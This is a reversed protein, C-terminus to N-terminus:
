AFCFAALLVFPVTPLVPLFVGVFGVLLSIFGLGIFVRRVWISRHLRLHTM